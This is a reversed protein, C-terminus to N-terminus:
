RAMPFTSSLHKQIRLMGHNSVLFIWWSKIPTYWERQFFLPLYPCQPHPKERIFRTLIWRKVYEWLKFIKTAIDCFCTQIWEKENLPPPTHNIINTVMVHLKRQIFIRNKYYQTHCPINQKMILADFKPM